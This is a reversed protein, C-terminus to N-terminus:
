ARTLERAIHFQTRDWEPRREDRSVGTIDLHLVGSGDVRLTATGTYTELVRVGDPDRVLWRENRFSGTYTCGDATRTLRLPGPVNWDDWRVEVADHESAIVFVASEETRADRWRGDVDPCVRQAVGLSAHFSGLVLFLVLGVFRTNSFLRM